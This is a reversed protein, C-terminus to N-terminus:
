VGNPSIEAAEGQAGQPTACTGPIIFWHGLLRPEGDGDGDRGFGPGLTTAVWADDDNKFKRWAGALDRFHYMDLANRAEPRDITILVIHDDDQEYHIPM